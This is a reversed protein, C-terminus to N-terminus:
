KKLVKAIRKKLAEAKKEEGLAELVSIYDAGVDAYSDSHSGLNQELIRLSKEYNQQTAADDQLEYCATALNCYSQAVEPHDPGFVHVRIDLAEVHMEKAQEAFGATYYLSGLNNFVAAVRENNRGHVKELTELAMLYHQEALPFRGLSKYIMALNNRLQASEHDRPPQMKEYDEIAAEYLPIAQEERQNFDYLTALGTRLRALQEVPVKCKDATDLAEQYMSEAKEFEGSQRHIEALSELGHVLLPQKDPDDEAAQRANRLTVTAARLADDLRGAQLLHSINGEESQTVPDSPM